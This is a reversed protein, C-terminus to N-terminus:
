FKCWHRSLEANNEKVYHFMYLAINWCWFRTDCVITFLEIRHNTIMYTTWSEGTHTLWSKMLFYFTSHRKWPVSQLVDRLACRHCRQILFVQLVYRSSVRSSGRSFMRPHHGLPIGPSCTNKSSVGSYDRSFMGQHRGQSCGQIVCWLFGQLVDRSLVGSSYRSFM